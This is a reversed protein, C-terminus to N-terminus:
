DVSLLEETEGATYIHFPEDTTVVGVEFNEPNLEIEDVSRLAETALTLAAEFELEPDFNDEFFNMIQDRNRGIGGANYEILAGSTDTEFLIPEDNCGCVLLSAGFPRVIGYQTYARKLDCIQRVLYRVDAPEDYRLRSAMAESRARDLLTRADAVLGSCACGIHEDIKFIKEISSPEILRSRVNKYALLVVGNRFKLGLSTTGRKVAERAYEVQYIRGDPSYVVAALDYQKREGPMTDVEYITRM